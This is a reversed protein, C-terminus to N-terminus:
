GIALDKFLQLQEPLVNESNKLLQVMERVNGSLGSDEYTEKWDPFYENITNRIQSYVDPIEDMRIFFMYYSNIYYVSITEEMIQKYYKQLLGRKRYEELLMEYCTLRDLHHMANKKNMTSEPHIYHHLTVGDLVVANRYYFKILRHWYVDEYALHEPFWVDNELIMSRRYVSECVYGLNYSIYDSVESSTFSRELNVTDRSHDERPDYNISYEKSEEHNSTVIDVSGDGMGAMYIELTDPELWDDADLFLVFEGKAAKIALNRAGGQRLNEEYTIVTVTDPHKKEWELLHELTDDTSADNVAIIEYYDRDVTQSIASEIARDVYSAANYCPIIISFLRGPDNGGSLGNFREILSDVSDVGEFLVSCGARSMEKMYMYYSLALIRYRDKPIKQTFWGNQIFLYYGKEYDREEFSRLFAEYQEDFLANEEHALIRDLNVEPIRSIMEWMSKLLSIRERTMIGTDRMHVISDNSGFLSIHGLQTKIVSMKYGDYISPLSFIAPIWRDIWVQMLNSTWLPKAKDSYHRDDLGCEIVRISCKDMEALRVFATLTQNFNNDGNVGYTSEYSAWDVPSLMTDVRRILCEWNTTLAGYDGFFEVADTYVEKLPRNIIEYRDREDVSFVIDHDEDIAGCIKDLTEGEYWCRDKSPWIYDYHGDLGNGHLVYLYKANGGNIGGLDRMPVYYLRCLDKELYRKVVTETETGPSSDYVYIDIGKKGYELCVHGLVEDIVEPHEHTLYCCAVRNKM